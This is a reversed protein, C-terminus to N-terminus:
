RREDTFQIKQLHKYRPSLFTASDGMGKVSVQM